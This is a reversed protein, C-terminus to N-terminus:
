EIPILEATPSQNNIQVRNIVIEPNGKYYINGFSYITAKIKQEAFLYAEGISNQGISTNQTKFDTAEINTAGNIVYSAEPCEGKFEFKGNVGGRVDLTLKECNLNLNMEVLETGYIVYIDLNNINMIETNSINSPSQVTITKIDKLHIELNIPTYNKLLNTYNHELFSTNGESRIKLKDLQDESGTAIIYEETDQVLEIYFVSEIQIKNIDSIEITRDIREDDGLILDSCSSSLFSIVAIIFYFTHTKM